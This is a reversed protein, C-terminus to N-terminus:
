EFLLKNIFKRRIKSILSISHEIDTITRPYNRFIQTKDKLYNLDLYDYWSLNPFDDMIVHQFYEDDTQKNFYDLEGLLGNPTEDM